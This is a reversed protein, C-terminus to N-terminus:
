RSGTRDLKCALPQLVPSLCLTSAGQKAKTCSCFVDWLSSICASPVGRWADFPQNDWSHCRLGRAWPQRDMVAFWLRSWKWLKGFTFLVCVWHSQLFLRVGSCEAEKVCCSSDLANENKHMRTCAVLTLWIPDAYPSCTKPVLFLQRCYWAETCAYRHEPIFCVDLVLKQRELPKRYQSVVERCASLHLTHCSKFAAFRTWMKKSNPLDCSQFLLLFTCLLYPPSHSVCSAQNCVRLVSVLCLYSDYTCHCSRRPLVCCNHANCFLIWSTRSVLALAASVTVTGAM